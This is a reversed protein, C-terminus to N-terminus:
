MKTKASVLSFINATKLNLLVEVSFNRLIKIKQLFLNNRCFPLNNKCASTKKQVNQMQKKNILSHSFSLDSTFTFFAKHWGPSCRVVSLNKTARLVLFTYNTQKQLHM